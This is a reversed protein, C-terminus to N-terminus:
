QGDLAYDIVQEIALNRGEEFTSALHDVGVVSRLQDLVSDLKRKEKPSLPARILERQKSAAGILRVAREQQNILACLCGMDELLYSIAWGDMLDKNIEMSEHYRSLATQFEGQERALNGLNNLANAIAWRDGVQRRIALGEEQLRCAEEFDGQDIAINGLNNLSVGIAWRDGLERRIQLAQDHLERAQQSNGQFRAVIGMNSLLSAIQPQDFLRERIALSQAYLNQARIYDGQSAAVTGQYHLAQGIGADDELDQYISLARVLWETAETYHGRKRQFEGMVIMCDVQARRDELLESQEIAEEYITEAEEWRGVLELVQGLKRQIVVQESGSLMPLARKYYSIATDNAYNKQSAEGAKILYERKKSENESHDYHYALINIYPELTNQYKNEIFQGLQDHLTARTDFPLSDYAAEQILIHKFLYILEPSTAQLSILEMQSARLLDSSVQNLNGLEMYYGCLWTVRFERGIVSAVKLAIKQNEALQDIRSLILSQLSDPLTLRELATPNHPDIGCDHLYNLLEEVYFPNGESHIAIIKILEQSPRTNSGYLINFKQLILEEIGNQPLESLNIELISGAAKILPHELWSKDLSRYVLVMLVPITSIVKGVEVVMHRSLDDIWHCDDLVLLLPNKRAELKIMEILLAELSENRVKADMSRTLDNDPILVGLVSGLLPMRGSLSSEMEDLKRQISQIQREETWSPDLCCLSRFINQWVLYNIHVGFSQCAGSYIQYRRERSSRVVEAVLRSKGVGAEGTITIIQGHGRNVTMLAQDIEQLEKQRGIMPFAYQPEHLLFRCTDKGDGLVFVELPVNKGKVKIKEPGEWPFFDSTSKRVARTCLIQGRKAAQMLRSAVNVEDGLVGYTRRLNGGYDGTRMRGQSIGIRVESFAASTRYLDIIEQAASVARIADDEHAVPAGFAAYLYSGKDGITLQILSGEFKGLIHIVDQIFADLKKGASPDTEFNIGLFQVFVAVAPRLEALFRGMGISLREYVPPLLWPRLQEDSLKTPDFPPWPTPEVSIHLGDIIAFRQGTEKNERWEAIQLQNIISDIADPHLIVEGSGTLHEAEALHDLTNGTLVDILQIQPDGVLFRRVSGCAVAVKINLSITQGSPLGISEFNRMRQKMELACAIARLGNDGDLWCTIADGSFGIVSGRYLHLVGIISDFIANLHRTLEEAGRQNGFETVLKEALPTFGSIDGFLAAGSTEVPLVQCDAIAYRRDEPMYAFLKEM